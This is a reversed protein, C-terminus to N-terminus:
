VLDTFGSELRDAQETQVEGIWRWLADDGVGYPIGDREYAFRLATLFNERLRGFRVVVELRLPFHKEAIKGFEELLRVADVVFTFWRANCAEETPAHEFFHEGCFDGHECAGFWEGNCEPQRCQKPDNGEM